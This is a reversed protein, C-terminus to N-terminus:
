RIKSLVHIGVLVLNEMWPPGLDHKKYFLKMAEYFADKSKEHKKKLGSSHKDHIVHLHPFFVIRWEEEKLRFCWDLDEGYMFFQEDLLGIEEIAERRLIMAAGTCADIDHIVNLNKWTQHYGGFLRNLGPISRTYKELGLFYSWANWPSPFGRHCAPDIKGSGLTVYPSLMGIDKYQDMFDLATELDSKAAFYADSNLLMVYDSDVERLALNNGGAFGVNTESAIVHLRTDKKQLSKFASVSDDSSANDVVVVDINPYSLSLCSEIARVTLDKTNFNLIIITIKAM